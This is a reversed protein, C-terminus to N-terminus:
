PPEIGDDTVRKTYPDLEHMALTVSAIHSDYQHADLPSSPLSSHASIRIRMCPTIDPMMYLHPALLFQQLIKGGDM